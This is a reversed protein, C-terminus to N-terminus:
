APQSTARSVGASGEVSAEFTDAESTATEANLFERATALFDKRATPHDVIPNPYNDGLKVGAWALAEPPAEWPAHIYRTELGALEPVWRRVYSGDPDFKKGQTIPNFIRFWPQADAGCGAAWQWGMTNQAWDGDTLWRLYHAEGRRFDIQLHKTLFSASIMRARNHVFGSQLLQRAAADVVPYGTTGTMWARWREPDWRWPFDAWAPKFPRRLIEPHDWLTSYNFERWILENLFSTKEEDPADAEQIRNWVQRVSLTGFKLDASLRSTNDRGLDNRHVGYNRVLGDAFVDLRERAHSEGGRQLELNPKLGYDALTPRDTVEFGEPLPSRDLFSPAPLIPEQSYRDQFRRRFHSYVSYPRGGLSRISGPPMLTEGEHLVLPITLKDAIRRDRERGFPETWRMALVESAMAAKALRPIVDVSRGKIFWLRSGRRSIEEELEALAELMYQLRHPMKEARDDNFFYPDVVFVFLAMPGAAYVAPHDELRLDKGRFWVIKRM